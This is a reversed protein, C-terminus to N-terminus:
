FTKFLYWFNSLEGYVFIKIFLHLYQSLVKVKTRYRENKTAAAVENRTKRKEQKENLCIVRFPFGLNFERQSALLKEVLCLTTVTSWHIIKFRAFILYENELYVFYTITKAM